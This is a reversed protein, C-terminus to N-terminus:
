RREWPTKKGSKNEVKAELVKLLKKEVLPLPLTSVPLISLGRAVKSQIQLCPFLHDPSFQHVSPSPCIRSAEKSQNQM